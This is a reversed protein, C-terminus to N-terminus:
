IKPSTYADRKVQQSRMLKRSDAPSGVSLILATEIGLPLLQKEARSQKSIVPAGEPVGTMKRIWRVYNLKNDGLTYYASREKDRTTYPTRLGNSICSSFNLM